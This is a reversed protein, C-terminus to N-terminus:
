ASISRDRLLRHLQHSQAVPKVPQRPEDFVEDEDQDGDGDLRQEKDDAGAVATRDDTVHRRWNEENEQHGIRESGDGEAKGCAGEERSTLKANSIASNQKRGKRTQLKV